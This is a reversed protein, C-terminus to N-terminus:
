FWGKKKGSEAQFLMLKADMMENVNKIYEVLVDSWQSIAYDTDSILAKFYYELDLADCVEKDLGEYREERYAARKLGMNTRAQKIKGYSEAAEKLVDDVINMAEHVKKLEKTEKIQEIAMDTEHYLRIMKKQMALLFDCVVEQYIHYMYPSMDSPDETGEVYTITGSEYYSKPDYHITLDGVKKKRHEPIDHPTKSFIIMHFNVPIIDNVIQYYTVTHCNKLIDEVLMMQMATMFENAKEVVGEDPVDIIFSHLGSWEQMFRIDKFGRAKTITLSLQKYYDIDTIPLSVKKLGVYTEHVHM